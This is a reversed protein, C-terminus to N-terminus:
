NLDFRVGLSVNNLAVNPEVFVPNLDYKAYLSTAGWGVYGSLGYVLDNTNFDNKMKRKMKEGNEEYRLKQREGINYGVFGGLGVKFKKATSFWYGWNTKAKDSPGFEFHLPVVVNDMRFKSKNLEQPFTELTTLDGDEVFYRNETPKLGNFQFSVGYKVRMWNSSKFVRTRWAIGVEFFRSGAFKFDSDSISSGEELANNFGAALVLHTSTRNYNSIVRPKDQTPRIVDTEEQAQLLPAQLILLIAMLFKTIKM